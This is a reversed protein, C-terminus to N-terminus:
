EVYSSAQGAQNDSCCSEREKEKERERERSVCIMSETRLYTKACIGVRFVWHRLIQVEQVGIKGTWHVSFWGNLTHQIGYSFYPPNRGTSFDPKIKQKINEICSINSNEL